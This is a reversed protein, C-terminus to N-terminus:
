HAWRTLAENFKLEADDHTYPMESLICFGYFQCIASTQSQARRNIKAKLDGASFPSVEQSENTTDLQSNTM